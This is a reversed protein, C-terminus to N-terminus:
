RHDVAPMGAAPAAVGPFRIARCPQEHSWWNFAGPASRSFRKLHHHDHASRGILGLHACWGSLGKPPRVHYPVKNFDFLMPRVSGDRMQKVIINSPHLDLDFLGAQNARVLVSQLEAILRDRCAAACERLFARLPEGFVREQLFLEARPSSLFGLPAASFAAFEPARHFVLNREYEYQAISGGCHRAHRAIARRHYHKVVLERGGERASFAVCRRGQGIVDSVAVDAFRDGM